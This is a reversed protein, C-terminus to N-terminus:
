YSKEDCIISIIFESNQLDNFHIKELSL